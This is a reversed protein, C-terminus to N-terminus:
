PLRKVTAFLGPRLIVPQGSADLVPKSLDIDIEVRLTRTTVSLEWATRSVKAPLVLKPIAQVRIEVPNGPEIGAAELEPFAVVV